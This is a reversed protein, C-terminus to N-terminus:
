YVKGLEISYSVLNKRYFCLLFDVAGGETAIINDRMEPM